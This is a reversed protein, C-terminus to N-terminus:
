VVIPTNETRALPDLSETKTIELRPGELFSLKTELFCLIQESNFCEMKKVWVLM